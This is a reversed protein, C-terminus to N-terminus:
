PIDYASCDAGAYAFEGGSNDLYVEVELGDVLAKVIARVAGPDRLQTICSVAAEDAYRQLVGSSETIDFFQKRVRDLGEAFGPLDVPGLDVILDSPAAMAASDGAMSEAPEELAADDGFGDASPAAELQLAGMDVDAEEAAVTATDLAEDAADGGVFSFLGAVAVVGVLAAAVTGLRTWDWAPKSTLPIVPGPEILSLVGTRLAARETGTLSPAELDALHTAIERQEALDAVCQECGDLRAAMEVETAAPDDLLDLLLVEDHHEHM